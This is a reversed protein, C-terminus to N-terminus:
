VDGQVTQKTYITRGDAAFYRNEIVFHDGAKNHSKVMRLLAQKTQERDDPHLFKVLGHRLLEDRPHGFCQECFKNVLLLLGNKDIFVSASLRM